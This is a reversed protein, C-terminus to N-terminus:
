RINDHYLVVPLYNLCLICRPYFYIFYGDKDDGDSGGTVDTISGNILSVRLGKM